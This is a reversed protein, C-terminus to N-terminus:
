LIILNRLLNNNPGSDNQEKLDHVILIVSKRKSFWIRDKDTRRWNPGYEKELFDISPLAQSGVYWERWLDAVTTIDRNMKYHPPPNVKHENSFRMRKSPRADEEIALTNRRVNNNRPTRNTTSASISSNQTMEDLQNTTDELINTDENCFNIRVRANQIVNCIKQIVSRMETCFADHSKILDNMKLNFQEMVAPNKGEFSAFEDLEGRSADLVEMQFDHFTPDQFVDHNWIPHSPFYIKMKCADQLIVKRFYLLVELFQIKAYCQEKEPKNQEETYINEVGPFVKNLLHEPVSIDRRIRYNHISPHFGAMTRMGEIPLSRSYCGEMSGQEWRGMSNREDKGLGKAQAYRVSDGRM